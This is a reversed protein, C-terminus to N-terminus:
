CLRPDWSPAADGLLAEDEVEFLAELNDVPALTEQDM